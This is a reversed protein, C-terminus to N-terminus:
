SVSSVPPAPQRNRRKINSKQIPDDGQATTPRLDAPHSDSAAMALLAVLLGTTAGASITGM